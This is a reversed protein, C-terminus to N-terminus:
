VGRRIAREAKGIVRAAKAYAPSTVRAMNGCTAIARALNATIFGTATSHTLGTEFLQYYVSGIPAIRADSSVKRAVWYRGSEHIIDSEKM